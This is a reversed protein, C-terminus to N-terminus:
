GAHSSTYTTSTPPLYQVYTCVEGTGPKVLADDGLNIFHFIHLVKRVEAFSPLYINSYVIWTINLDLTLTPASYRPLNKCIKTGITLVLM